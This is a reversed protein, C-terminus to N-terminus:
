FECCGRCQEIDVRYYAGHDVASGDDAYWDGEAPVGFPRLVLLALGTVKLAGLALQPTMSPQSIRSAALAPLMMALPKSVAALVM